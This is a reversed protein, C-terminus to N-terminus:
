MTLKGEITKDSPLPNEDDEESTSPGSKSSPPRPTERSPLQEANSETEESEREVSVETSESTTTSTDPNRKTENGESVEPPQVIGVSSSCARKRKRPSEEDTTSRRKAGRATVIEEAVETPESVDFLFGCSRKENPSERDSSLRRKTGRATM